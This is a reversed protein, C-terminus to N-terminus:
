ILVKLALLRHVTYMCQESVNQTPIVATVSSHSSVVSNPTSGVSPTM